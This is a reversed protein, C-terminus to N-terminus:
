NAIAGPVSTSCTFLASNSTCSPARARGVGVQHRTRREQRGRHGEEIQPRLRLSHRPRQSRLPLLHHRGGVHSQLRELERSSHHDRHPFRGAGRDLHSADTRRSLAEMGAAVAPHARIGLTRRGSLVLGRRSEDTSGRHPLRGRCSGHLSARRRVYLEDPQSRFLVRTGDPTWGVVEDDGPHFTLRRPVGGAAPVVYVDVNGDYEGTFAIQTGDPSFAPDREIGIGATLRKADGGERSVTWIDGGCSFAIQTQSVSPGRLLVPSASQAAATTAIAFTLVIPLGIRAM